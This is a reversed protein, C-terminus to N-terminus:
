LTGTIQRIGDFYDTMDIGIAEFNPITSAGFYWDNEVYYRISSTSRDYHFVHYEHTDDPLQFDDRYGHPSGDGRWSEVIGNELDCKFFGGSYTWFDTVLTGGATYIGIGGASRNIPSSKAVYRFCCKEQMIPYQVEDIIRKEGIVSTSTYTKVYGVGNSIKIFGGTQVPSIYKWTYLDPNFRTWTGLLPDILVYTNVTNLDLALKYQDEPAFPGAALRTDKDAFTWSHVPHNGLDIVDSQYPIRKYNGHKTKAM